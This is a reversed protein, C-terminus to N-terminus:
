FLNFISSDSATTKDIIFATQTIHMEDIVDILRKYKGQHTSKVLVVLDKKDGWQEQVENQRKLILQRLGKSSYDISDVKSSEPCTFYKIKDGVDILLTLSKSCKLSPTNQKNDEDAPVLMKISKPQMFTTALMFFTILLFGLDVMPTMDVRPASKGKSIIEAM